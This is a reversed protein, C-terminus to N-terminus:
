QIFRTPGYVAKIAEYFENKDAYQQIQHTEMHRLERQTTSRLDKWKDHLAASHPNHLKAAHAENKARLLERIASNNHDFWDEHKKIVNDLQRWSGHQAEYMLLCLKFHVRQPVSLWHLREQLVHKIHDQKKAGVILRAATNLV